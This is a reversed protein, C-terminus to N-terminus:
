VPSGEIPRPAHIVTPATLPNHPTFQPSPRPPAALLKRTCAAYCLDTMAKRTFVPYDALGRGQARKIATDRYGGQVPRVTLRRRLRSATENLWDIVAPARKQYAQVALGFGDWGRLSVDALMTEVVDLTLELRDAEEADVTFDLDLDRAKRALELARPVLETLVRHRSVAEFRPHLASLKVSIGPRDAIDGVSAAIADIAHAYSAFYREADAATRAGEGLMDFSYRLTPQPRARQLAERHGAPGAPGPRSGRSSAGPMSTTGGNATGRVLPRACCDRRSRRTPRRMPLGSSPQARQM